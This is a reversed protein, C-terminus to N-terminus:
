LASNSDGDEEKEEKLFNINVYSLEYCCTRQKGSRVSLYKGFPNYHYYFRRFGLKEIELLVDSMMKFDETTSARKITYIESTHIEFVLQRVHRLVGEKFMTRFCSWENYEIDIKLVDITKQFLGVNLSLKFM